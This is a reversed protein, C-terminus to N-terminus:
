AKQGVHLKHILTTDTTARSSLEVEERGLFLGDVIGLVLITARNIALDPFTISYKCPERDNVKNMGQAELVLMKQEFM